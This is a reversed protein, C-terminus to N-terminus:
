SPAMKSKPESIIMSENDQKIEMNLEKSANLAAEQRSIIESQKLALQM